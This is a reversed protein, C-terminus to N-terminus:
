HNAVSGPLDVRVPSTVSNGPPRRGTAIHAGPQGTTRGHPIDREAMHAEDPGAAFFGGRRLCSSPSLRDLSLLRPSRRRLLSSKPHLCVAEDIFINQGLSCSRATPAPCIV